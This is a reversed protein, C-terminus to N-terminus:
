HLSLIGFTRAKAVAETRNHSDLKSYINRTHAKVTHISIFLRSGIEQNTLGEAMLSLVDLERDSLQELSVSEPNHSGETNNHDPGGIPMASLLRRSYDPLIERQVAEYLLQAAQKGEDAFLRFYGEPAALSLAEGLPQLAEKISDTSFYIMAQLLLVEITSGKRGGTKAATLLRSLLQGAEDFSGDTMLARALTIHEFEKLYSLEDDSSLVSKQIWDQVLSLRGQKLWVRAMIAAVPHPNPVPAPIYLREAKHLQDLAGDFDGVAYKIRAQAVHWRYPWDTQAFRESLRNSEMLHYEATERNGQEHLLMGLGLHMNTVVRLVDEGYEAAQEISREYTSVADRLNGRAEQLYAEALRTSLAFVINGASQFRRTGEAVARLAEKLDGNSWFAMGLMSTIEGQRLHDNAPLLDLTQRAHILTMPIDGRILNLYTRAAAISAPLAFTYDKDAAEIGAPVHGGEKLMNEADRLRGESGMLDGINMLAWAYGVSLVPRIKIMKEPIAKVYKLWNASQLTGDMAPWALEALDAARLADESAAAHQFAEIVLNNKEYWESAHIHLEKVRKKKNKEEPSSGRQMRQRLLDSFLHHFRYWRREKDLPIIFLNSRDLMELTETGSTQGTLADCLPGTMRTLISTELLFKQTKEPQLNLVEELLYDLVLHHSGTFSTIRDAAVEKGRISLAALQLGAIWGETRAELLVIEEQSLDMDMQFNLFNSIERSTFRLDAARLEALLGRARLRALPINPDERTTIILHLQPPLHKIMFTIAEDVQPSSLLHYDDLVLITKRPFTTIENILSTLIGTNPPSPSSQLTRMVEAGFHADIGNSRQLASIFCALFSGTDSEGEDLSLWSRNYMADLTDLWESVVSSKGFGAPASILTM